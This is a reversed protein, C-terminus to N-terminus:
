RKRPKGAKTLAAQYALADAIAAENEEATPLRRVMSDPGLQISAKPGDIRVQDPADIWEGDRIFRTRSPVVAVSAVTLQKINDARIVDGVKVDAARLQFKALYYEKAAIGRKTLARCGNKGDCKYCRSHEGNFSHQGTGGCRTCNETEFSATM